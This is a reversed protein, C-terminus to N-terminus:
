KSIQWISMRTGRAMNTVATYKLAPLSDACCVQRPTMRHFGVEIDNVCKAVGSYMHMYFVDENSLIVDLLGFVVVASLLSSSFLASSAEATESQVTAAEHEEADETTTETSVAEETATEEVKVAAAAETYAEEGVNASTNPPRAATDISEECAVGEWLKPDSMFTADGPHSVGETWRVKPNKRFVFECCPDGLEQGNTQGDGDSDKMCFEKTWHFDADIMDMGFENMPGALKPDLHGLATVGPVKNGNPVRMAYMSYRVAQPITLAAFVVTAGIFVHM